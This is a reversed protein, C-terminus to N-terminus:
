TLLNEIESNTIKALNLQEYTKNGELTVGEIQPKNILEDYDDAGVDQKVQNVLTGYSVKVTEVNSAFPMYHSEDIETEEPLESIKIGSTQQTTTTRRSRATHSEALMGEGDETLLVTEDHTLLYTQMNGDIDLYEFKPEMNYGNEDLVEVIETIRATASIGYENEVTVMDGLFYDQKYIFTIDPIVSGEFSIVEGYQSLKEAGRNLLYVSYVLDRLKCISTDDPANSPIDAIVENYVQYYRNGDITIIQGSPYNTQLWTLQDGDVIQVNLYNMKYTYGSTANGSIYGQGGQDTTPYASTLDSWTISKAIDKADIYHEYRDIGEAYGYVNRARNAGEGEGAILAVNGMNTKDDVYKTSSLNEYADSFFVENSRDTGNYLQFWLTNNSLVVRYGWGYTKCYDRVKEGVNKYTVQETLVETFGAATGLQLLLSGNPKYLSRAGLAANILTKNVLQRIFSELNGDCTLTSWVIRQDLFSKTDTGNVILYNGEEASTDVEVRNIRCVMNDDARVLYNGAELLSINSDSAELYLECDGVTYYRNAWILSRYSDIIGVAELNKNLVYIDIM